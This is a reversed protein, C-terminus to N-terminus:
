KSSIISSWGLKNRCSDYFDHDIPHILNVESKAKNILINDGENLSIIDHSDISLKAKAKNSLIRIEISSEDKILLPSTSLSHPFMPLLTIAQVSPHVIPGGGSLSYATSGTPTNIIIGDARQRYVFNEDVYLEYEILQAIAGSHIVMENLAIYSDKELNIKAELFFRKDQVYEGQIIQLLNSTIDEPALDALFGLNGLNVGLVPIGRSGYTRSCGLITGDGGISIILDIKKKTVKSSPLFKLKKTTLSKLKETLFVKCQQNSLIEFCQNVIELIKEDKNSAYIAIRSFKKMM